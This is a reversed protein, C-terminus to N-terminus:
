LPLKLIYLSWIMIVADMDRISVAKKMAVIQRMLMDNEYESLKDRKVSPDIGLEEFLTEGVHVDPLSRSRQPSFCM